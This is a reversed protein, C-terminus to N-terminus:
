SHERTRRAETQAPVTAVRPTPKGGSQTAIDIPLIHLYLAICAIRPSDLRSSKLPRRIVMGPADSCTRVGAHPETAWTTTRHPVNQEATQLQPVRVAFVQEVPRAVGHQRRVADVCENREDIRPTRLRRTGCPTVAGGVVAHSAGSGM